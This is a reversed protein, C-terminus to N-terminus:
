IRPSKEVGVEVVHEVTDAVHNKELAKVAVSSLTRLEVAKAELPAIFKALRPDAKALRINEANQDLLSPHHEAQIFLPSNSDHSFDHSLASPDAAMLVKHITGNKPYSYYGIERGRGMSGIRCGHNRAEDIYNRLNQSKVDMNLRKAFEITYREGLDYEEIADVSHHGIRQLMYPIEARGRPTEKSVRIIIDKNDKPAVVNAFSGQGLFELDDFGMEALHKSVTEFSAKKYQDNYKYLGADHKLM